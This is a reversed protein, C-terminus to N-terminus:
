GVESSSRSGCWVVGCVWVGVVVVALMWGGEKTRSRAWDRGSKARERCLTDAEWRMHREGTHQVESSVMWIDDELECRRGLDVSCGRGSRISVTETRAGSKKRTVIQHDSRCSKVLAISEERGGRWELRNIPGM